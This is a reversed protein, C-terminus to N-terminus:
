TYCGALCVCVCVCVRERERERLAARSVMIDKQTPEEDSLYIEALEDDVEALQEPFLHIALVAM